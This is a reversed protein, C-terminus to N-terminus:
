FLFVEKAMEEIPEFIKIEFNWDEIIKSYIEEINEIFRNLLVKLANLEEDCILVGTIFKGPQIIFIKNTREIISIGKKDTLENLIDNISKIIGSNIQEDFRTNEEKFVKYYICIGSKLMLFLKDIKKRWEYEELSPVTLFFFCILVFGILQVIDGIVRYILGFSNLIYETTFLFGIGLATFGVSLALIMLKFNKQISRIYPNSVFKMLYLIMFLYFIAYFSIFALIRPSEIGILVTILIILIIMFFVKSFLFRKFFIQSKEMRYLFILGCLMMIFFGISLFFSRIDKTEAIYDGLLCFVWMISYGLFMMVYGKEQQNPEKKIKQKKVRIYFLIAIESFLLIILWEMILLPERLPGQIPFEIGEFIM